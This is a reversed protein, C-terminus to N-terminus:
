SPFRANRTAMRLLINEFELRDRDFILQFVPNSSRIPPPVQVDTMSCPGREFILINKPYWALAGYLGSEIMTARMKTTQHAALSYSNLEFQEVWYSLPQENVHTPNQGCDQYPTAASFFVMSPGGKILESVFARAYREPLHEATELSVVVEPQETNQGRWDPATLDQLHFKDHLHSPVGSDSGDIGIASTFHRQLADLLLCHGCGVDIVTSAGQPSLERILLALHEYSERHKAHHEFFEKDYTEPLTGSRRPPPISM